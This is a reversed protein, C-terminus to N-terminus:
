DPCKASSDEDVKFRLRVRLRRFMDADLIEPTYIFYKQQHNFELAFITLCPHIFLSNGLIACYTTGDLMRVRWEDDPNLILKDIGQGSKYLKKKRLYEYFSLCVMCTVIVKTLISLANLWVLFICFLHTIIVIRYVIVSAKVPLRFTHLFDNTM